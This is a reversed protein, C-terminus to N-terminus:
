PIDSVEAVPACQDATHIDTLSVYNLKSQPTSRLGEDMGFGRKGPLSTRNKTASGKFVVEM